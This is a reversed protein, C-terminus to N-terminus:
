GGVSVSPGRYARDSRQVRRRVAQTHRHLISGLEEADFFTEHQGSGDVLEVIGVLGRDNGPDVRYIRIIFSDLSPVTSASHPM